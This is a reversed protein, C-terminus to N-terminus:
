KKTWGIAAFLKDFADAIPKFDADTWQTPIGDAANSAQVSRLEALMAPDQTKTAIYQAYARAFTEHPSKYYNWNKITLGTPKALLTQYAQSAGLAAKLSAIEPVRNAPDSSTFSGIPTYGATKPQLGLGTVNQVQFGQGRVRIIRRFTSIVPNAGPAKGLGMDDLWHGVEHAVTMLPHNTIGYKTLTLLTGGRGPAHSYAGYHGQANGIKFALDALNGDGHVSDILDLARRAYVYGGELNKSIAGYDTFKSGKPGPGPPIKLSASVKPGNPVPGVPVPAFVPGPAPPAAKPM